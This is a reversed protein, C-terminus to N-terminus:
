RPWGFFAKIMTGILVFPLCVFMIALVACWAWIVVSFITYGVRDLIADLTANM